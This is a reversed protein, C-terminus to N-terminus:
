FLYANVAIFAILQLAGVIMGALFFNYERDTITTKMTATDEVPKRPLGIFGRILEFQRPPSLTIHVDADSKQM